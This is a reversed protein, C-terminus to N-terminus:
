KSDDDKEEVLNKVYKKLVERIKLQLKQCIATLDNGLAVLRQGLPDNRFFDRLEGWRKKVVQGMHAKPEDKAQVVAVFAVLALSLLIYTRM